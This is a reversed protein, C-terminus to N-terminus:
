TTRSWAGGSTLGWFRRGGIMDPAIKRLRRRASCYPTWPLLPRAATERRQRWGAWGEAPSARLPARQAPRAAAAVSPSQAGEERLPPPDEGPDTPPGPTLRVVCRPCRGPHQRDIGSSAKNNVSCGTVGSQRPRADEISGFSEKFKLRFLNYVVDFDIIHNVNSILNHYNSGQM